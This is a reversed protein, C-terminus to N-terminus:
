LSFCARFHTLSCVLLHYLRPGPDLLMRSGASISAWTAEHVSPKRYHVLSQNFPMQSLTGCLKEQFVKSTAVKDTAQSLWPFCVWGIQLSVFSLSVLYGLYSFWSQLFCQHDPTIFHIFYYTVIFLYIGLDADFNLFGITCTSMSPVLLKPSKLNLSIKSYKCM